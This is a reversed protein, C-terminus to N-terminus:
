RWAEDEQEEVRAARVAEAIIRVRLMLPEAETRLLRLVEAQEPYELLQAVELREQANRPASQLEASVERWWRRLTSGRYTALIVRDPFTKDWYTKRHNGVWGNTWDIGYHVLLLLAQATLAAGEVPPLEVPVPGGQLASIWRQTPTVNICRRRGGSPVAPTDGDGLGRHRAFQQERGDM